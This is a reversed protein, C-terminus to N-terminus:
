GLLTSSRRDCLCLAGTTVARHTSVAGKALGTSGSTFLITADDEPAVDPLTPRTATAALLPALAESSRGTSRCRRRDPDHLRRRRDARGARGDAIILKPETLGLAHAM